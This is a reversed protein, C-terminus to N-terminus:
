QSLDTGPRLDDIRTGDPLRSGSAYGERVFGARELVRQSGLNEPATGAVLRALGVQEFAWAAVLRAARTAFGRGRCAPLLSYGIMAQQTPPERYYLGIEGAYAGTRRTGSPSTPGSAPWGTRRPGPAARARDDDRSAAAGAAGLHRGGRAPQAARLTDDVDGPGLPRLTSWATPRAAGAAPLDPLLRPTPGDPDTALRAWVILDHRGGDRSAGGGRQMGERTYGAALAM